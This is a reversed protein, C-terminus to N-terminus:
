NSTTPNSLSNASMSAIRSSQGTLRCVYQSCERCLRFRGEGQNAITGTEGFAPPHWAAGTYCEDVFAKLKLWDKAKDFINEVKTGEFNARLTIKGIAFSKAIVTMYCIASSHKVNYFPSATEVSNNQNYIYICHVHV